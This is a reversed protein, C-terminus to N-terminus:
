QKSSKAETVVDQQADGVSRSRASRAVALPASEVEQKAGADDALPMQQQTGEPPPGAQRLGEEAYSTAVAASVASVATAVALAMIANKM